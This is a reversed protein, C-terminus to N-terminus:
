MRWFNVSNAVAGIRDDHFSPLSTIAYKSLHFPYSIIILIIMLTVKLGQSDGLAFDSRPNHFSGTSDKCSHESRVFSYFM